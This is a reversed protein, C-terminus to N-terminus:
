CRSWPELDLREVRRLDAVRALLEDTLEREIVVSTANYFFDVGVCDLLWKPTGPKEIEGSERNVYQWDYWM